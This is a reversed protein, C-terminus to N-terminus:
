AAIDHPTLSTTLDAGLAQALRRPLERALASPSDEQM